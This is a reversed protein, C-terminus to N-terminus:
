LWNGMVIFPAWYYPHAYPRAVDKTFVPERNAASEKRTNIARQASLDTTLNSQQVQGTLLALQADRLSRANGTSAPATRLRYFERMLIATSADAVPWLTAMVSQAGKQQVVAALGEVEEGEDTRGGGKATECASLTLLQVGTFNMNKITALSLEKGDGLLLFSGSESGAQFNFHTAIHLVSVQDKLMDRLGDENFDANMAIQGPILGAANSSTKIIARLESGVSPLASFRGKAESLGLGGVQWQTGSQPRISAGGASTHNAVAMREALYQKGDHLAAFPVYRLVDALNLILTQPAAQTLEAEVPGLLTRYLDQAAPKPDKSPDDLVARLRSVQKRVEEISLPVQRAASAAKTHFIISLRKDTLIYQLGLADGPTAAVLTQMVSSTKGIQDRQTQGDKNATVLSAQLGSLWRQMKANWQVRLEGLVKLRATDTESRQSSRKQELAALEQADKVWEQSLTQMERLAQAEKGDLEAQTPGAGGRKVLDMLEQNKLMAMVQEAEALRGATILWDALDSYIGKNVELLGRNQENSLGAKSQNRVSQWVNVAQKAYLIAADHNGMAQNTQAMVKSSGFIFLASPNSLAALYSRHALPLAKEPQGMARYLGALNNLSTGTSPHEPGEAKESIGLARLYLPLAKDYHGMARYLAALNNLSTGTSPHESGEAKESIGLARVYLPLALDYQGMARYLVALNNLRIGTSPHEQGQVKESIRLARIYLPLATGYQGMSEYLGALNNLRTGTSPHEAGQTKESIGLARVYMPLAKNYQGMSEYIGALNNLRMGTSPHEPGEAKESIELARIYLPLAKDYQGMSEFLGALNNLSTGTSPHDPGEVKESIGLARVYMPLAKEYQGISEYFGALNNLSTGTTPHEPGQAKENIGLAKMYLPLAKDYQSMARYLVALNNLSTATSPHEPGLAKESIALARVYLPLAKDYQGMSRYLLALNNLSMGTNPHEAGQAKENISLARVYLPLAKGYQGMVRYLGALNNLRTGTNPHELGQAKEGIDLARIYLPLAKDYQGIARYVDALNSLRSGTTPHEPGEAKESIELARLYIPLAKEYQGTSEYLGALNNLRSSTLPHERGYGKESIDLARVYLPLAKAFQGMAKYVFALNAQTTGTTVHDPGFTRESYDLLKIGQVIADQYQRSSYLTLVESNLKVWTEDQAYSPIQFGAFVTIAAVLKLVVLGGCIGTKNSKKLM